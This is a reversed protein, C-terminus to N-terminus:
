LNEKEKKKKKGRGKMKEERKDGQGLTTMGTSYM